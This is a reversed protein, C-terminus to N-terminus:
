RMAPKIQGDITAGSEVMADIDTDTFPSCEAPTIAGSKSGIV